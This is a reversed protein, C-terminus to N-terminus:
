NVYVSSEIWLVLITMDLYSMSEAPLLHAFAAVYKSRFLLLDLM